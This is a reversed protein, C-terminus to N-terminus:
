GMKDEGVIDALAKEDGQKIKGAIRKAEPEIVKKFYERGTMEVIGTTGSILRIVSGSCGCAPCDTAPPDTIRALEEFLHECELCKYEYIPM